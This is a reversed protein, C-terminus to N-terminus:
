EFLSEIFKELDNFRPRNLFYVHDNGDRRSSILGAAKMKRIAGNTRSSDMGFLGDPFPSRAENKALGRVMTLVDEDALAKFIDLEPDSSIGLAMRNTLCIHKSPKSPAEDMIIFSPVCQYGKGSRTRCTILFLIPKLTLPKPAITCKTADAAAHLAAKRM